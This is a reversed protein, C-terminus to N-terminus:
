RDEGFQKAFQRNLRNLSEVVANMGRENQRGIRELRFIERLGWITMALNFGMLYLTGQEM